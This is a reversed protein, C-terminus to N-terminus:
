CAKGSASDRPDEIIITIRHAAPEPIVTIGAGALININGDDDPSAGFFMRAAGACSVFGPVAYGVYPIRIHAGAKVAMAVANRTPSFTFVVNKGAVLVPASYEGIQVITEEPVAARAASDEAVYDYGLVADITIPPLQPRTVTTKQVLLAEESLVYSPVPVSVVSPQAAQVTQQQTATYAPSATVVITASFTIFSVNTRVGNLLNVREAAVSVLYTGPTAFTYQFGAALENRTIGDPGGIATLVGNVFVRATSIVGYIAPDNIWATFNFNVHVGAVARTNANDIKGIAVTPHVAASYQPTSISTSITTSRPMAVMTTGTSDVMKYKVGANVLQTSVTPAGSVQDLTIPTPAGVPDDVYPIPLDGRKTSKVVILKNLSGRDSVRVVNPDFQPLASFTIVAGQPIATVFANNSVVIFAAAGAGAASGRAVGPVVVFRDSGAVIRFDIVFTPSAPVTPTPAITILVSNSRDRLLAAVYFTTGVEAAIDSAVSISAGVILGSLSVGPVSTDIDSILPYAISENWDYYGPTM